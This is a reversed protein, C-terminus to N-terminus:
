DDLIDLIKKMTRNKDLDLDYDDLYINIDQESLIGDTYKGTLLWHLLDKMPIDDNLKIKMLIKDKYTNLFSQGFKIHISTFAPIQFKEPTHDELELGFVENYQSLLVSVEIENVKVTAKSIEHLLRAIVIGPHLDKLKERVINSPFLRDLLSLLMNKWNEDTITPVLDRIKRITLDQDRIYEIAWRVNLKNNHLYRGVSKELKLISRLKCNTAMDIKRTFENLLETSATCYEGRAADRYLNISNIIDSIVSNDRVTGTHQTYREIQKESLIGPTYKGTVLWNLFNMAFQDQPSALATKISSIILSKEPLSGLNKLISNAVKREDM